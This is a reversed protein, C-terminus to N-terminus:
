KNLVTPSFKCGSLIPFIFWMSIEASKIWWQMTATVLILQQVVVNVSCNAIRNANISTSNPVTPPCLIPYTSVSFPVNLLLQQFPGSKGQLLKSSAKSPALSGSMLTAMETLFLPTKLLGVTVHRGTLNLIQFYYWLSGGGGAQGCDM